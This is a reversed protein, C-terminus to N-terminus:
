GRIFGAVPQQVAQARRKALIIGYLAVLAVMAPFGWKSRKFPGTQRKRM